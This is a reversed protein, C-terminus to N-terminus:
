WCPPTNTEAQYASANTLIAPVWCRRVKKGRGSQPHERVDVDEQKEMAQDRM